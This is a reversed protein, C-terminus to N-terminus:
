NISILWEWVKARIYSTEDTPTGVFGGLYRTGTTVQCELHDFRAKTRESMAPKVVLISKTPKLFYRREPGKSQLLKFVKKLKNLNGGAVANNAYWPQLSIPAATKLMQTLPLMSIGYLIM